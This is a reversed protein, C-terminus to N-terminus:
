KKFLKRYLRPFFSENKFKVADFILTVASYLALGILFMIPSTLSGVVGVGINFGWSNKMNFISNYICGYLTLFAWLIPFYHWKKLDPKAWGLVFLMVSMMFMISHHLMSTITPPFFISPCNYLEKAGQGIYNCYITPILGALLGVFAFFHLIGSDKKCFILSISFFFSIIGCFSKPLITPEDTLGYAPGFYIFVFIRNILIIAFYIIGIIRILKTQSAEDKCKKKALIIILATIAFSILMYIIHEIGFIKPM